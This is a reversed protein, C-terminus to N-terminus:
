LGLRVQLHVLILFIFVFPCLYVHDSDSLNHLRCSVYFHSVIPLKLLMEASAKSDVLLDRM